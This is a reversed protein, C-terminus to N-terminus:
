GLRDLGPDFGPLFGIVRAGDRDPPRQRFAAIGVGREVKSLSVPEAAADLGVEAGGLGPELARGTGAM